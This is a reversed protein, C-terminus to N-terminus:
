IEVGLRIIQCVPKEVSSNGSGIHTRVPMSRALPLKKSCDPAFEVTQGEGRVTHDLVAKSEAACPVANDLNRAAFPVTNDKSRWRCHNQFNFGTGVLGKEVLLEGTPRRL